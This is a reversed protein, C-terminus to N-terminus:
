ASAIGLKALTVPGAEGDPVLGLSAQFAIIAAETHPGFVGDVVGAGFGATKLAQQLKKVLEGHMPPSNLRLVLATPPQYVPPPNPVEYEVLPLLMAVDWRRGDVQRQTVGLKASSAEVTTGDGRSLAVHGLTQPSPKRVLVAGPTGKAQGISIRRGSKEADRAWAGSYANAVAPNASNDTCGVLLGSAQFAIWSAFEACDWPGSWDSNDKPVRVGLVYREGVHKAAIALVQQPTTV